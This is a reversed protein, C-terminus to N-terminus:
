VAVVPVATAIGGDTFIVSAFLLTTDPAATVNATAVPPPLMVPPLGLLLALPM